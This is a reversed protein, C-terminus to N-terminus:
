QFAGVQPKSILRVQLHELNNFREWNLGSCLTGEHERWTNAVM